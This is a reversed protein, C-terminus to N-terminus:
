ESGGFGAKVLIGYRGVRVPKFLMCSSVFFLPMRIIMVIKIMMINAYLVNKLGSATETEESDGAELTPSSRKFICLSSCATVRSRPM